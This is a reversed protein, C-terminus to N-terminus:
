AIARTPASSIRRRAAGTQPKQEVLIDVGGSGPVQSAQAVINLAGSVDAQRSGRILLQEFRSLFLAPQEDGTVAVKTADDKQLALACPNEIETHHGCHLMRNM